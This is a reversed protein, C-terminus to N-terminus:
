TKSKGEVIAIEDDTLGYLRYVMEDIQRELDSTDANPDKAKATLIQNVLTIFPKQASKPIKPIPINNIENTSINFYGGAMTLSHYFRAFWFSIVKSNLIATLIKLEQSNGLIITTSKGALYEGNDYFAEIERAMGAIIIKCSNAQILRSSSIRKLDSTLIVPKLYNKKIYQTKVSGWLSCYKDVTGTNIFKKYNKTNCDLERLVEKIQYAENVTAASIVNSFYYSLSKQKSIKVLINVITTEEFYRDWYIDKYFIDKTIKNSTKCNEIDNMKTMLVDSSPNANRIVFVIPYVDAENFVNVDSYDRIEIFNKSLLLVRLTETYKAGILKNPVIYTLTGNTKTLLLGKEIFVVFLDWNGKASRYLKKLMNRFAPDTKTMMESDVYPPNGIVIDFGDTVGFMWEPDFWNASANQDYPDFEAIQKAVTTNWGDKELLAALEQRLKKDKKQYQLKESRTKATFYKHRLERLEREKKDIEESRLKLQQPKDLGILANAAVFKTELNPLARIGLNEKTKDIKQDLILSIFFRLKSIQIAIPQIDIGFICNEILYLKRAYDPYNIGEDFAENIEKLREERIRKDGLKFAEETERIAKQFQLEYWYENEPDLKQLANVLTHLIGMPFAGSGCAPDLIKISDIASIIKKTEDENFPNPNESYSLLERIEEERDKLTEIRNKLYEVLSERVMYDVIERPTYYSGTAKRATTATEPNYSALLNEFVKGLLEPDLAIEQDVPTNEDITFNYSSLIEILGRVLKDKGLGYASLDVKEEKDQFFLYDPIYAQKAPNRSFGDVYIVKGTEDEKDLCDFLGGNLFPIDKFLNLVEKEGLLFKDRYRYLNKVGYEKKHAPYGSENAFKRERMKQNLTGFFLNQLIANYYNSARKDKMFDKVIKELEKKSFLQPPILGKEKLFWIFIIRTILRILNTANRIENDKEPDDSYKYDEPFRIKDIAWFYWNQLENYFQKTVPDISFAVKINQLSSFDCDGIQKIFTKNTLDPSVYYTFRKFYSWQRRKGAYEPYILSFRFGRGREGQPSYYIFIGADAYTDKLIRKGKEYQAKKGSRETLPQAAEFSCILMKENQAFNIEGIVTGKRFNDDDYQSLEEMRPVFSRNKERFFDVFKELNFDEIISKLIEKGM